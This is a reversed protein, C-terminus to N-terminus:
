TGLPISELLALDDVYRLHLEGNKNTQDNFCIGNVLVLLLLLGLLAGQPGGGTAGLAGM